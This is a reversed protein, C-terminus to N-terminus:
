YQTGPGDTRAKHPERGRPANTDPSGERKPGTTEGQTVSLLPRHLVQVESGQQGPESWTRGRVTGENDSDMPSLVNRAEPVLGKKASGDPLTM